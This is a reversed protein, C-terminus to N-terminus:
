QRRPRRRGRQEIRRVGGLKAAAFLYRAHLRVRRVGAVDVGLVPRGRIRQHLRADAPVDDVICLLAAAAEVYAIKRRRRCSEADDPATSAYPAGGGAVNRRQAVPSVIGATAESAVDAAILRQHADRLAARCLELHHETELRRTAALRCREALRELGGVQRRRSSSVACPGSSDAASESAPRLSNAVDALEPRRSLCSELDELSKEIDSRSLSRQRRIVDIVKMTDLAWV